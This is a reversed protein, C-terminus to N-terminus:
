HSNADEPGSKTVNTVTEAIREIVSLKHDASLHAYRASMSGVSGEASDRPVPYDYAPSELIEAMERGCM